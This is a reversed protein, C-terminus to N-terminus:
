FLWATLFFAPLILGTEPGLSLGLWPLAQSPNRHPPESCSSSRGKGLLRERLGLSGALLPLAACPRVVVPARQFLGFLGLCNALHNHDKASYVSYDSTVLRERAVLDLQLSSPSRASCSAAIANRRRPHGWPWPTGMPWGPCDRHCRHVRDRKEGEKTPGDRYKGM